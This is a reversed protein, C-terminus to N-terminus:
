QREASPGQPVPLHVVHGPVGLICAPGAPGLCLLALAPALGGSTLPMEPIECCLYGVTVRKEM